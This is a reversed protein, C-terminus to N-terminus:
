ITIANCETKICVINDDEFFADLFVEKGNEYM